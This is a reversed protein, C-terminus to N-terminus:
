AGGALSANERVIQNTEILSRILEEIFFPNGDARAVIMDRINKPLENVGLLNTLLM